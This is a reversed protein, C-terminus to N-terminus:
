VIVVPRKDHKWKLIEKEKKKGQRNTDGTKRKTIGIMVHDSIDINENAWFRMEQKDATENVLIYDIM